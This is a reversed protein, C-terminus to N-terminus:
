QLEDLSFVTFRSTGTLIKGVLNIMIGPFFAIFIM